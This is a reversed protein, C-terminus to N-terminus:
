DVSRALKRAAEELWENGPLAYPRFTELYGDRDHYFLARHLGLASAEPSDILNASDNASMQFVVRLAFESLAKRGLVRTVNNYTDCSAVIHIGQSSGEEILSLLLAAPSAGGEGAGPSLSFDEEQRLNKYSELSHILLFVPPPEAAAESEARHKMEEVLGNLVPGIEHPKPQEVLNPIARIIRDFELRQWSGPPTRDLLIFRANRPPYQAALAILALSLIGLAAEERQGVILLHHGSQRRFVAEAPGKIANPAGLWLRPLSAAGPARSELAARLPANDRVEAPANGEFVMPGPYVQPSQDARARVKALCGDRTEDSLWVAQFPSNGEIAGAADNYIGEGPRSLLRPAPNHEDMILFADTENCQLAIRVVMQGLTARALTYAGGLTQSGLLVHIGFARGQRVIRDLLMAASQAIRDEEVFFEQFEDIILLCRPVREQGGAHKYGPLDQVGLKRFLDGRRRLEEDVRQLVSLGFARDSEIAVVRAHPLQRTAYCRFEVGKKFDVLYFEVQEPSCRLALNTILIHFLTSKGSGTKGAILAHQRTGKGLALYQLKTPGSLGIPVRLEGTADDAWLGAEAPAIQAFPVEVRSAEKGAQGVLRLLRTALAPSPPGDLVLRVGPLISGALSFGLENGSVCVANKRLEDPTFDHPLAHRRDWHILTYVGCRGGSAAISLLRRGATESFNVPFGAIVLIQYKEAIVGARANYEAITPYENRLYMQIVKEMHQNLEALKEEIPQPQTWIRSNIASAEYDALHMLGAFSQGLGVPDIITFSLKGPPTTSLLRFVINNIANVVEEDGDGSTEFLISGQCPYTLLLPVSFAAPGPVKLRRKGPPTDTFQELAVELRGFKAGNKFEHPPSWTEWGPNQWDPYLEEAVANARRLAAWVPQLADTWEKELTEWRARYEAELGTLKVGHAGEIRKQERQGELRSRALAAAHQSALRERRAQHRQENKRAVRLAKAEIRPPSEQRMAAGQRVIEQWQRDLESKVREAEAKIREQEQRLGAEAMASGAERCRRATALGAAIRLAAPKGQQRGCLYVVWLLALPAATILGADRYDVTNVGFRRLVPILGAGALGLLLIWLWISLYGFWRPLRANGFRVLEERTTVELGALAELLRAADPPTGPEPWVRDPSLWRRFAGYGRFAKRAAAELPVFAAKREELKRNFEEWRVAAGALDNERRRETEMVSKQVEYKGRGEWQEIKELAQKRSARHAQAMRERSKELHAQCQATASAFAAEANAAEEALRAQLHWNAAEHAKAEQACQFRYEAGLQDEKAAYARVVGKLRNLLELIENVGPNDSM